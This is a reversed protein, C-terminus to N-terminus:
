VNPVELTFAIDQYHLKKLLINQRVIFKGMSGMLYTYDPQRNVVYRERNSRIVIDGQKVIPLNSMYAQVVEEEKEIQGIQIDDTITRSYNIYTTVPGKYGNIRGSGGCSSCSSKIRKKLTENYCNTCNMNTESKCYIYSIEGLPVKELQWLIDSAVGLLYPDGINNPTVINSEEKGCVIKYKIYKNNIAKQEIDLYSTAKGRSIIQFEDGDNLARLVDFELEMIPPMTTWMLLVTHTNTREATFESIRM